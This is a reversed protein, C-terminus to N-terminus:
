YKGDFMEVTGDDFSHGILKTGEPNWILTRKRTIFDLKTVYKKIEESTAEHMNSHHKGCLKCGFNFYSSTDIRTISDDSPCKFFKSM